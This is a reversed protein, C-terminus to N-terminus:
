PSSLIFFYTTVCVCSGLITKWSWVSFVPYQAPKSTVTTCLTCSTLIQIQAPPSPMYQHIMTIIALQRLNASIRVIPASAESFLRPPPSISLLQLPTIKFPIPPISCSFFPFTTKQLQKQLLDWLLPQMLFASLPPNKGLADSNLHPCPDPVYSKWIQGLMIKRTKRQARNYGSWWYDWVAVYPTIKKKNFIQDASPDIPGIDQPGLASFQQSTTNFQLHM